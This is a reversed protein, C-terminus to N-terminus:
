ITDELVKLNGGTDRILIEYHLRAKALVEIAIAIGEDPIDTSAEGKHILNYLIGIAEQLQLIKSDIM